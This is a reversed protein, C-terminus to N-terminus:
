GMMRGTISDSVEVIQVGDVVESLVIFSKCSLSFECDETGHGPRTKM